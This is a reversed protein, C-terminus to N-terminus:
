KRDYKTWQLFSNSCPSTSNMSISIRTNRQHHTLYNQVSTMSEEWLLKLYNGNSIICYSEVGWSIESSTRKVNYRTATFFKSTGRKPRADGDWYWKKRSNIIIWLYTTHYRELCFDVFLHIIKNKNRNYNYWLISSFFIMWSIMKSCNGDFNWTMIM